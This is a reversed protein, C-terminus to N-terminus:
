RTEVQGNTLGGNESRRHDGMIGRSFVMADNTSSTTRRNGDDHSSCRGWRRAHKLLTAAYSHHKTRSNCTIRLFEAIKPNLRVNGDDRPKTFTFLRSSHHPWSLSVVDPM